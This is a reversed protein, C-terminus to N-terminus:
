EKNESEQPEYPIVSQLDMRAGCNPCYKTTRNELENCNSCKFCIPMKIWEGTKPQPRVPPLGLLTEEQIINYPEGDMVVWHCEKIAMERSIADDCPEQEAYRDIIIIAEALGNAYNDNGIKDIREQIEAKIKELITM